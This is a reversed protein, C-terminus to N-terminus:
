EALIARSGEDGFEHNTAANAAAPAQECSGPRPQTQWPPAEKLMTGIEKLTPSSEPRIHDSGTDFYIGQTAVRGTTSLADYLKKGGAAIRFNGFLTPTNVDGDTYFLIQKSRGVDANPVNLVRTDDLYVKMYKGDALVRGRRM